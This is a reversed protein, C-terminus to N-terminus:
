RGWRRGSRPCRPTRGRRRLARRLRPWVVVAAPAARWRSGASPMGGDSNLPAELRFDVGCLFALGVVAQGCSFAGLHHRQCIVQGVGPVMRGGGGVQLFAYEPRNEDLDHNPDLRIVQKVAHKTVLRRAKALAQGIMAAALSAKAM